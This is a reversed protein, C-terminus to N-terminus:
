QLGCAVLSSVVIFLWESCSCLPGLGDCRSLAWESVFVWCPWFYIFVHKFNLCLYFKIERVKRNKREQYEAVKKLKELVM